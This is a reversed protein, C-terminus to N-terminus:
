SPLFLPPDNLQGKTVRRGRRFERMFHQKAKTLNFDQLTGGTSFHQVFVKGTAYTVSGAMMSISASGVFSGIGPLVKFTSGLGTVAVVPLMGLIFSRVVAREIHTYRIGYLKILDDVMKFQINTLAVVDLLPVPILGMAMAQAVNSKVISDAKASCAAQKLAHLRVQDARQALASGAAVPQWADEGEDGM